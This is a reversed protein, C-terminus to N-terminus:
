GKKSRQHKPRLELGLVKAIKALREGAMDNDGALYAQVGRMPLGTLKGIRYGTLGQRNVEAEIIKRFSMTEGDLAYRM